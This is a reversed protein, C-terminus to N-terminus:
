DFHFDRCVFILVFRRWINNESRRYRWWTKLCPLTTLAKVWLFACVKQNRKHMYYIYISIGMCGFMDYWELHISVSGFSMLLVCRMGREMDLKLSLIYVFLCFRLLEGNVIISRIFRISCFRVVTNMFLWYVVSRVIVFSSSCPLLYIGLMHILDNLM